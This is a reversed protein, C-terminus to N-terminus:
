RAGERTLNRLLAGSRKYGWAIDLLGAVSLAVAALPEALALGAVSLLLAGAPLRRLTRRVRVQVWGVPHASTILAGRVLLSGKLTADYDVFGSGARLRRKPFDAREIIKALFQERTGGTAFVLTGGAARSVPPPLAPTAGTVATPGPRAAYRGALRALPQALHLLGVRLRFIRRQHRLWNPPRVRAQDVAILSTLALLGAGSPLAGYWSLFSLPATAVLLTAVPVGIQHALTMADGGDRYVSQYAASGYPGRYIRQRGWKPRAISGYIHGRWRAHGTWTFRDPHRWEVLAESRGYGRQQRLYASMRFRPHHWVFAAPHFGIEWGKDLLRWCIDIDDGATVYAPDFGGLEILVARRFAMNCGPIHEARDDAILVHAPGFV